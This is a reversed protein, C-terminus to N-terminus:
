KNLLKEKQAIAREWREYYEPNEKLFEKIANKNQLHHKCTLVLEKEMLTKNIKKNFRASQITNVLIEKKSTLKYDDSLLAAFYFDETSTIGFPNAGVENKQEM